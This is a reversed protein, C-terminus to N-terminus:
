LMPRGGNIDITAGVIFGNDDSVLFRVLKAVDEDTGYKNIPIEKLLAARREPDESKTMASEIRGPAICNTIINYPGLEGATVRTFSAVAAKTAAYHCGAVPSYYRGSASSLNVIRGWRNEMMIPAAYRTCNFVGNLNIKVVLEWEAPDMEYLCRKKGDPKKPSIGANNILIDLSGFDNRIKKIMAEVAEKDSVDALYVQCSVGKARIAEATEKAQSVLSYDNLAINVGQSALELAIARGIGRAAGTVLAVRGKIM